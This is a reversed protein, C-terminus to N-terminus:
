RDPVAHLLALRDLIPKDNLVDALVQEWVAAREKMSNLYDVLVQQMQGDGALRSIIFERDLGPGDGLASAGFRAVGLRLAQDYRDAFGAPMTDFSDDAVQSMLTAFQGGDTLEGIVYKAQPSTPYQALITKRMKNASLQDNYVTATVLLDMAVRPAAPQAANKDLYSQADKVYESYRGDSLYQEPEPIAPAPAPTQALASAAMSLVLSLCLLRSM